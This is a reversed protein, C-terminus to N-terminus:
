REDRESQIQTEIIMKVPKCASTGGKPFAFRTM